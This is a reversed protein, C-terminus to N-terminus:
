AVKRSTIHRKGYILVEDHKWPIQKLLNQFLQFADGLAFIRGFYQCDGDKPLVQQPLVPQRDFPLGAQYNM